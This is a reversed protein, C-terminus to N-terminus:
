KPKIGGFLSLELIKFFSDVEVFGADRLWKCNDSVGALINSELAPRNHYMKEVEERTKGEGMGECINDIFIEDFVTTTFKSFSKVHELNLFMGGPSLLDFIERYVEEKRSDPQHHISLGSVILDFPANKGVKEVWSADGFDALVFDSRDSDCKTRAAELMHESYDSFTCRADPYQEMLMRGLIGDGCGLDLIRRAEPVGARAVRLLVEIQEMAMPVAARVVNLYLENVEKSKWIASKDTMLCGGFVDNMVETYRM